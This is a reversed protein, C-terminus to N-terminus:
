KTSVAPDRLGQIVKQEAELIGDATLKFNAKLSSNRDWAFERWLVLVGDGQSAFQMRRVLERGYTAQALAEVFQPGCKTILADITEASPSLQLGEATVTLFLRKLEIADRRASKPPSRIQLHDARALYTCYSCFCGCEPSLRMGPSENLVYSTTLYSSFLHAFKDMQSADPRMAPPLNPLNRQVWERSAEATSTAQHAVSFNLTQKRLNARVWRLLEFSKQQLLVAERLEVPDLM